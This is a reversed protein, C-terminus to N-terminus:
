GASVRHGAAASPRWGDRGYRCLAHAPFGVSLLLVEGDETLEGFADGLLSPQKVQAAAIVRALQATRDLIRM